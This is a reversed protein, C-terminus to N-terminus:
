PFFPPIIPPGPPIIPPGPPSPPQVCNDGNCGGPPTTPTPQTYSGQITPMTGDIFWDTIMPEGSHPLLGTLASITGAHVNSPRAFDTAPYNYLHSAYEIIDHWIPGAGTIGIVNDMLSNDSNGAWVGVALYPTYGMTWNDRFSDTTGTKAAAPRDLELPNGPFFEHYRATKDSLISDILYAIGPSVARVGQEQAANFKYIPRNTNDTIELISTAPERVGQNAFTAYASTLHLLSVETAGIAMSPGLENLPKSAVETLGLRAAMNLINPIGAYELTDIAPINFSNAIATRATMPYGTHFTGDYNQPSYYPPQLNGPYYTKHDPIIMGPYWGMEFATAYVVPKISSGPQRLALAANFQGQMQPTTQNYKASGDMALIEGTTPSLVVVAGNNVNNTINLPGYPGLYSDQQAQYLHNYVSQEVYKELRLDLTTYINYGGNLLNQAGLLPILVQDVVYEVFHPAQINHTMAYPKFDFKATEAAADLAQKRTIMGLSVMSNLVFTQRARAAPKNIIPDYTSPSQPLGALLSAQALDLQAVAPVCVTKTCKPQLGFFDQAASEIGYNLDGYYVTNLYMEMIKWKPYQDTLGISLLAEEGKVSFTRAQGTFFQNKILQETVTSAGELAAQNQLDTLAARVIGYYDLGTNTWFTHDEAAVTANVLLPSINNYDVYTRRGYNLQHNYLEYLLNGNRDYIHTTQFLSHTAIRNLIPLQAQYYAYASGIGAAILSAVIFWSTILAAWLHPQSQQGQRLHHRKYMLVRNLRVRKMERRRRPSPHTASLRPTTLPLLAQPTHQVLAFTPSKDTDSARSATVPEDHQGEQEDQLHEDM